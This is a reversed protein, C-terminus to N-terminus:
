LTLIVRRRGCATPGPTRVEVVGDDGTGVIGQGRSGLSLADDPLGDDVRAWGRLHAGRYNVLELVDGDAVDLAQSIGLGVPVIRRREADYEDEATGAVHAIVRLGTMEARLAETAELDIRDEDVIVGYDARAGDLSVYGNGLDALVSEPARLLPNETAM